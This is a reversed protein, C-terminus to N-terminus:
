YCWILDQQLRRSELKQLELLNLRKEYPYHRLGRLRKTFHRQVQELLEIDRKLSPSWIIYNCHVWTTSLRVDRLCSCVILSTNRSVLCRLILNARQHAKFVIDNIYV